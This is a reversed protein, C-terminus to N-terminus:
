FSFSVPADSELKQNMKQRVLLMRNYNDQRKTEELNKTVGQKHSQELKKMEEQQLAIKRNNEEIIKELRDKEQLKEEIQVSQIILVWKIICDIYLLSDFDTTHFRNTIVCM